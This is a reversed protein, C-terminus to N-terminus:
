RDVPPQNPRQADAAEGPIRMAILKVVLLTLAAVLIWGGLTYKILSGLDNIFFLGLVPAAIPLTASILVIGSWRETM